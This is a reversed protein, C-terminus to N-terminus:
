EDKDRLPRFWVLQGSDDLIMPGYQGVGKKPAVFVYGPTTDHAHTTVEVTPPSLDPRSRFTMVGNPQAPASRRTRQDPQCGIMSLLTICAAGAGVFKLFESRTRRMSM